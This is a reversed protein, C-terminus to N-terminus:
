VGDKKRKTNSKDVETGELEAKVEDIENLSNEFIHGLINVDVESEFDYESLQKTHNYLLEDDIRVNDLVDDTKFLGGNYAFVDYRKGKFGTNLYGFYKKFRNYLSVDVDREILDKWDSLVLRVS